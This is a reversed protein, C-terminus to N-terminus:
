AEEVRSYGKAAPNVAGCNISWHRDTAPDHVGIWFEGAGLREFHVDVGSAIFEDLSDGDLGISPQVQDRGCRGCGSM